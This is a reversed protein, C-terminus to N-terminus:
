CISLRDFSPRMPWATTRCAWWQSPPHISLRNPTCTVPPGCPWRLFPIPTRRSPMM